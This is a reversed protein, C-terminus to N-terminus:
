GKVATKQEGGRRLVMGLLGLALLLSTPASAVSGQVIGQVAFQQLANVAGFSSVASRWQFGAIDNGTLQLSSGIATASSEAIGIDESLVNAAVGNLAVFAGEYSIFQQLRNAADVLAIGDPSGNQIGVYSFGLVGYGNQQDAFVGSLNLSDYSQGNSGNYFWLRWGQLDIGALGALEVAEGVDTGTNDYHLENIFVPMAQVNSPLLVFGLLCFIFLTFASTFRQHLSVRM